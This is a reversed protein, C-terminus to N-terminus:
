AKWFRVLEHRMFHWVGRAASWSKKAKARRGTLWRWVGQVVKGVCQVPADLTVLTKYAILAPGSSGAKRFYHVYGISVNPAAFGINKRSSVRGYHVVEVSGVYV